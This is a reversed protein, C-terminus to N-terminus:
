QTQQHVTTTHRGDFYNMVRNLYEVGNAYMTHWGRIEKHSGGSFSFIHKETRVLSILTLEVENLCILEAPPKGLMFGNVIAFKPPLTTNSDSQVM